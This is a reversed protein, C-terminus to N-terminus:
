GPLRLGNAQQSPSRRATPRRCRVVRARPLASELWTADDAGRGRRRRWRRVVAGHLSVGDDRRLQLAFRLVLYLAAFGAIAGCLAVIAIMWELM